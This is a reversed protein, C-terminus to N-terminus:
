NALSLPLILVAFARLVWPRVYARSGVLSNTAQQIGLAYKATMLTCFQLFFFLLCQTWDHNWRRHGVFLYSLRYVFFFFFWYYYKLTYLQSYTCLCAIPANFQPLIMNVRAVQWTIEKVKKNTNKNWNKRANRRCCRRSYALSDLLPLRRLRGFCCFWCLLHQLQLIYFRCLYFCQTTVYFVFYFLAFTPAVSTDCKSKLSHLACACAM